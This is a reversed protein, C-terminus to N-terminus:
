IVILGVGTGSSIPFTRFHFFVVTFMGELGVFKGTIQTM